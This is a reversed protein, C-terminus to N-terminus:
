AIGYKKLKLYLTNRSMNLYKAAESKNNGTKLLVNQILEKEKQQVPSLSNHMYLGNLEIGPPLDELMIVENQCITSAYLLANKLERINGPWHYSRFVSLVDESLRKKEGSTNEGITYLLRDILDELDEKRKRLPPIHLLGGNLRYFLDERFVGEQVM